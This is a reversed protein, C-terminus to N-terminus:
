RRRSPSDPAPPPWDPFQDVLAVSTIGNGLPTTQDVGYAPVTEYPSDGEGECQEEGDLVLVHHHPNWTTGGPGHEQSGLWPEGEECPESGDHEDELDTCDAYPAGWYAQSFASANSGISGLSPEFDEEPECGDQDLECDSAAGTAWRTQSLWGVSGLWPEDDSPDLEREDCDGSDSWHTQDVVRGDWSSFGTEPAGLVAEFDADIGLADLHAIIEAALAELREVAARQRALLTEDVNPPPAADQGDQPTELYRDHATNAEAYREGKKTLAVPAPPTTNSGDAPM